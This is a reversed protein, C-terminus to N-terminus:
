PICVCWLNGQKEVSGPSCYGFEYGQAMMIQANKFAMASAILAQEESEYYIWGVKNGSRQKVAVPYTEM